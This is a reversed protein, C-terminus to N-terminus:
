LKRLLEGTARLWADLDLLQTTGIGLLAAATFVGILSIAILHGYRSTFEILQGSKNM